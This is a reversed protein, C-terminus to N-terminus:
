THGTTVNHVVYGWRYLTAIIVRGSSCEMGAFINICVKNDNTRLSRLFNYMVYGAFANVKGNNLCAGDVIVFMTESM